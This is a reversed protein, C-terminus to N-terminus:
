VSLALRTRAAVVQSRQAACHRRVRTRALAGPAQLRAVVRIRSDACRRFSDARASPSWGPATGVPQRPGARQHLGCRPRRTGVAREEARARQREHLGTSRLPHLAWAQQGRISAETWRAVYGTDGGVFLKSLERVPGGDLPVSYLGPSGYPSFLVTKGDPTIAPGGANRDVLKTLGTGDTNVRYLPSEFSSSFVVFRGDPTVAFGGFGGEGLVTPRSAGPELRYLTSVGNGTYAAYVIGGVLDVVPSAPGALTEDVVLTGDEGSASGLWIGSRRETRTAVGMRRDATLSIGHFQAFDRTLPIWIDSTLDLSWLGPLANFSTSSNLLVHTDDLWAAEWALGDAKIPM